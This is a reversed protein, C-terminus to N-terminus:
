FISKFWEVINNFINEFFSAEKQEVVPGSMTVYELPVAQEGAVVSVNEKGLVEYLYDAKKADYKDISIEVVDGVVVTSTILIDRKMLEDRHAGFVFEDIEKQKQLMADEDAASLIQITMMESDDTVEQVIAPKVEVNTTDAYVTAMSSVMLCTGIILAKAAKNKIM